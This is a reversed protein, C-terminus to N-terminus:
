HEGLWVQVKVDGAPSFYASAEGDFFENELMTESDPLFLRREGTRESSVYFGSRPFGSVGLIKTTTSGQRAKWTFQNSSYTPLSM